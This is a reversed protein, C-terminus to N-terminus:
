IKCDINQSNFYQLHATGQYSWREGSQPALAIGDREARHHRPSEMGKRKCTDPRDWGKGIQPAPAIGYSKRQSAPTLGDTEARRQWPSGM